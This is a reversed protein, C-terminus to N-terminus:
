EGPKPPAKLIIIEECNPCLFMECGKCAFCNGCSKVFTNKQASYLCNHCQITHIEQDM